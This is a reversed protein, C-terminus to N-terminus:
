MQRFYKELFTLAVSGILNAVSYFNTGILVTAAPHRIMGRVVTILALIMVALM